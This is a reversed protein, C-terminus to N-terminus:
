ISSSSVHGCYHLGIRTFKRKRVKLPFNIRVPTGTAAIETHQRQELLRQDFELDLRVVNDGDATNSTRRVQRAENVSVAHMRKVAARQRHRGADLKRIMVQAYDDCTAVTVSESDAAI